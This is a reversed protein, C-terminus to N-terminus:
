VGLLGNRSTQRLLVKRAVINVLHENVLRIELFLKKNEDYNFNAMNKCAMKRVTNTRCTEYVQGSRYCVAAKAMHNYFQLQTIVFLWRILLRHCYKSFNKHPLIWHSNIPAAWCQPCLTHGCLAEPYVTHAYSLTTHSGQWEVCVLYPMDTQGIPTTLGTGGLQLCSFSQCGTGGVGWFYM